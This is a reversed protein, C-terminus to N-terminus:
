KALGVEKSYTALDWYDSNRSIKGNRFEVVTSGRVAFPKATAPLGPLDKTQRSRWVWEIFGAKGDASVFRSRPEFRLDAFSGFVTTAFDRLARKDTMVAALTVDEYFVDDAFLSLLKAVDGSSWVSTWEVLLDDLAARGARSDAGRTVAYGGAVRAPERRDAHQSAHGGGKVRGM